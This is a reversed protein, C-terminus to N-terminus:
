DYKAMQNAACHHFAIRQDASKHKEDIIEMHGEKNEYGPVKGLIGIFAAVISKATQKHDVDHSLNKPNNEFVEGVATDMINLVEEVRAIGTVALFHQRQDFRDHGIKGRALFRRQDGVGVKVM